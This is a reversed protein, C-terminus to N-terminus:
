GVLVNFLPLGFSVAMPETSCLTFCDSFWSWAVELHSVVLTRGEGWAEKVWLCFYCTDELGAWGKCWSGLILFLRVEEWKEEQGHSASLHETM